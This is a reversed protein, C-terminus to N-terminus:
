ESTITEKNNNCIYNYTCTLIPIFTKHSENKRLNTEKRVFEKERGEVM